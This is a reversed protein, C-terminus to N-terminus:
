EGRLQRWSSGEERQQRCASSEIQQHLANLVLAEDVGEHDCIYGLSKGGCSVDIGFAQFVSLTEPHEIIWDPVSTDLNCDTMSVPAKWCVLTSTTARLTAFRSPCPMLAVIVECRQRRNGSAQSTMQRRWETPCLALFRSEEIAGIRRARISRWVAVHRGLELVQHFQYGGANRPPRRAVRGPTQM